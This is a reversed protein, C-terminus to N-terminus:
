AGGQYKAPVLDEVIEALATKWDRPRLGFTRTLSGTDLRSNTPRTAATPYDATTIPDVQPAPRGRDEALAFVERALECWTADGSNVFHHTGSPSKPDTIISRVITILAEAVDAASTPNGTQDDVVGIRDRNEALKLMTKVFNNGHASLVWATRLIVHNPNGTRIALEGGAKSAGYVSVPSITDEPLYPSTKTGDFVYDTSLQIIPIKAKETAQALVAPALANIRWALDRESQAMDVATYAGSNIVAAWRRSVIAERLADTSALDLVSREPAVIEFDSPARKLLETGIQGTGGTILISYTVSAEIGPARRFLNQHPDAAM